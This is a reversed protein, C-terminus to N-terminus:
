YRCPIRVGGGHVLLWRLHPSRWREHPIMGWPRHLLLKIYIKTGLQHLTDDLATLLPSFSSSSCHQIGWPRHQPQKNINQCRILAFHAFILFLPFDRFEINQSKETRSVEFILYVYWMNYFEIRSWIQKRWNKPKLVFLFKFFYKQPKPLNEDSKKPQFRTFLPTKLM